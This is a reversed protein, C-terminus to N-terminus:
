LLLLIPQSLFLSMTIVGPRRGVRAARSHARKTTPTSTPGHRNPAPPCRRETMGAYSNVPVLPGLKRASASTVGRGKRDLAERRSSGTEDLCGRPLNGDGCAAAAGPGFEM